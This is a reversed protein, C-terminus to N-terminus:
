IDLVFSFIDTCFPDRFDQGRIFFYGKQAWQNGWSNAVYFRQTLSEYDCLVMSHTELPFVMTYYPPTAFLGVGLGIQYTFVLPLGKNVENVANLSGPAIRSYSKLKVTKGSKLPLGNLQCKALVASLTNGGNSTELAYLKLPDVRDSGKKALQFNAAGAIAFSACDPSDLQDLIEPLIRM